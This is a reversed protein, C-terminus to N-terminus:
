YENKLSQRFMWIQKGLQNFFERQSQIDIGYIKRVSDLFAQVENGSDLAITLFHVKNKLSDRSSGEAINAVISM